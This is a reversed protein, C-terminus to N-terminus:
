GHTHGEEGDHHGHGEREGDFAVVPRDEDPLGSEDPLPDGLVVEAEAELLAVDDSAGKVRHDRSAHERIAGEGIADFEERVSAPVNANMPDANWDRQKVEGWAREICEYLTMGSRGAYDAAYVLLDGLADRKMEAIEEPTHRIGQKGKLHAHVLEGLEEIMGFLPNDASGARGTAGAVRALMSRMMDDHIAPFGGRRDWVENLMSYLDELADRRPDVGTVGFNRDAWERVEAQFRDVDAYSPDRHDLEFLHDYVREAARSAIAIQEESVRVGHVEGSVQATEAGAALGIEYGIANTIISVVEPDRETTNETTSM